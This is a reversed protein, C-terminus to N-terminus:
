KSTVATCEEDFKRLSAWWLGQNLITQLQAHATQYAPQFLFSIQSAQLNFNEQLQSLSQTLRLADEATRLFGAEVCQRFLDVIPLKQSLRHVKLIELLPWHPNALDTELIGFLAPKFPEFIEPRALLTNMLAQTTEQRQEETYRYDLLPELFKSYEIFPLKKSELLQHMWQSRNQSFGDEEQFIFSGNSYLSWVPKDQWSDTEWVLLYLTQEHWGATWQRARNGFLMGLPDDYESSLRAWRSEGLAKLLADAEQPFLRERVMPKKETTQMSSPLQQQLPTEFNIISPSPLNPM